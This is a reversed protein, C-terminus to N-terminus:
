ITENGEGNLEKTFIYSAYATPVKNEFHEIVEKDIIKVEFFVAGNTPTQYENLIPFKFINAKKVLSINSFDSVQIMLTPLFGAKIYTNCARFRAGLSLHKVNHKKLRKELEKILELAYGKRRYKKDIALIQITAKGENVDKAAIVGIMKNDEKAYLILSKDISFQELLKNYNNFMPYYHESNQKADEFFIKSAFHYYPILEKKTKVNDIKM